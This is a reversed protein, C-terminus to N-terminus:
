TDLWERLSQRSRSRSLVARGYIEAIMPPLGYRECLISEMARRSLDYTSPGEIRHHVAATVSSLPALIELALQDARDEIRFADATSDPGDDSTRGAHLYTGLPFGRLIGTLREEPTAPRVGDLVEEIGAGHVRFAAARPHLYDNLFHAIEHALSFRQEDPPDEDDLFAVGVGGRAVLYGHLHRDRGTSRHPICRQRLWIAATFLSLRPLRVVTLPLAVFVAPELARPFSTEVGARTWFDAATASVEPDFIAM